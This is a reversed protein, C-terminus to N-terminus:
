GHSLKYTKYDQYQDGLVKSEGRLVMVLTSTWNKGKVKWTLSDKDYYVVGLDYGHAKLYDGAYIKKGSSDKKGTYFLKLPEEEGCDTLKDRDDLYFCNTDKQCMFFGEYEMLGSAANWVRFEGTM